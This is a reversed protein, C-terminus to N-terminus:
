NNAGFRSQNALAIFVAGGVMATIIGIPMRGSGLDIARIASDSLLIISAGALVSGPVVIRHGPGAAFRVLHPSILGVFGIPGALVVALATLVGSALFLCIRLPRIPVGLSTAEDDGLSSADLMPAAFTGAVAAFPVLAVGALLAQRPADDSLAGITWRSLSLGRDPMLYMLFMTGASFMISVIVGVLVLRVPELHGRSQSLLYVLAIAAFAGALAAGSNVTAVAAASLGIGATHALFTSLTVAFGAGSAPGILDPSALPNRLLCQLFVGALALSAGVILGSLVRDARLNWTEGTPWSVGAPGVALRLVVASVFVVTLLLIVLVSRRM